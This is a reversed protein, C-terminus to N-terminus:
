IFVWALLIEFVRKLEDEDKKEFCINLTQPFGNAEMQIVFYPKDTEDKWYKEVSVFASRMINIDMDYYIDKWGLDLDEENKPIECDFASVWRFRDKTLELYCTHCMINKQFKLDFIKIDIHELYDKDM